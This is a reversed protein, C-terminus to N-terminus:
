PTAEPHQPEESSAQRQTLCSGALGELLALYKGYDARARALALQFNYWVAETEVYDTFSGQGERNWVEATEMARVAQPLLQDRYLAVLREANKLRFFTERISARTENIRAVLMAAAKDMGAKAAEIRGSKKDQWIPLTMGFQFGYMDNAPNGPTDPANYEYTFGLMFEPRNQYVAADAEARSKEKDAAAERIEERHVEALRYIDNLDVMLPPQLIDGLNGIQSEPDRNLLSNLRTIETKELEQLLLWDYQVQGSQSQTKLVDYLAVRDGAYANEAVQRLHDLVDRNHEAMLMAQRIYWLEYYSGRIKVAEDRVTRDLELRAIQSDAEAVRGAAALKGPYPSTQTLSVDIRKDSWNRSPDLPWYITGMQPDPYATEVRQKEIASKWSAKAAKVSPNSQYASSLLDDLSPADTIRKELASLGDDAAGAQFCFALHILMLVFLIIGTRARKGTEM